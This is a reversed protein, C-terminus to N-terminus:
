VNVARAVSLAPAVVVLLGTVIVTTLFRQRTPSALLLRQLVRSHPHSSKFRWPTEGV